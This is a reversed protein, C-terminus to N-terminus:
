IDGDEVILRGRMYAEGLALAPDFALQRETARDAISISVPPPSADGFRYWRGGADRVHVDGTTLEWGILGPPAPDDGIGDDRLVGPRRADILRISCDLFRISGDADVDFGLRQWRLPDGIITLFGVRVEASGGM